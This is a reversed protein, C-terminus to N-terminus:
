IGEKLFYLLPNQDKPIKYENCYKITDFYASPNRGEKYGINLYHQVPDVGQNKVDTYQKLYYDIDFYFSNKTLNYDNNLDNSMNSLNIKKCQNISILYITEQVM